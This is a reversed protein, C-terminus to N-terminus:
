YIDAVHCLPACSSANWPSPDPPRGVTVLPPLCRLSVAMRYPGYLIDIVPLGAEM